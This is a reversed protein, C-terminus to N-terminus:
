TNVQKNFILMTADRSHESTRGTWGTIEKFVERSLKTINDKPAILEYDVQYHECFEEWIKADRKISGAGQAKEKGGTFWTRKRADEIYIKCPLEASKAFDIKQKALELAQIINLTEVHTLEGNEICAFGTKVGTDIGILVYQQPQKKHGMQKQQLMAWNTRQRNQRKITRKM